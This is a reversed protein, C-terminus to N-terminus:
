QVGSSIMVKAMSIRTTTKYTPGLRIAQSLNGANVSPVSIIVESKKEVSTTSTINRFATIKSLSVLLNQIFTRGETDTQLAIFTGDTVSRYAEPPLAYLGLICLKTLNKANPNAAHTHSGSQVPARQLLTSTGVRDVYPLVIEDTSTENFVHPVELAPANTTSATFFPITAPYDNFIPQFAGNLSSDNTLLSHTGSPSDISQVPVRLGQRHHISPYNRQTQICHALRGAAGPKSDAASDFTVVVPVQFASASRNHQSRFYRVLTTFFYSSHENIPATFFDVVASQPSIWSGLCHEFIRMYFTDGNRLESLLGTNSLKPCLNTEQVNELINFNGAIVYRRKVSHFRTSSKTGHIRRRPHKLAFPSPATGYAVLMLFSDLGEALKHKM